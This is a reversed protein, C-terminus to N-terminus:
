DIAPQDDVLAGGAAWLLLSVMVVFLLGVRRRFGTM